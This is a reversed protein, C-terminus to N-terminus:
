ALYGCIETQNEQERIGTGQDIAEPRNGPVENCQETVTPSARM